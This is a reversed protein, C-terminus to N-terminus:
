ESKTRNVEKKISVGVKALIIMYTYLCTLIRFYYSESMPVYYPTHQKIYEIKGCAYKVRSLYDSIKRFLITDNITVDTNPEIKDIKRMSWRSLIDRIDTRKIETCPDSNISNIQELEDCYSTVELNCRSSIYEGISENLVNVFVVLRSEHHKVIENNMSYVISLASLIVFLSSINIASDVIGTSFRHLITFIIGFSFITCIIIGLLASKYSYYYWFSIPNNAIKETIINTGLSSIISFLFVIIITLFAIQYMVRSIHLRTGM